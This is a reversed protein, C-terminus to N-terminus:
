SPTLAACILTEFFLGKKELVNVTFGTFDECTMGTKDSYLVLITGKVSLFRPAQALFRKLLEKGTKGGAWVAEDIDGESPLYPPNFLIWDYRGQVKDFLDSETFVIKHEVGNNRARQGAVQLAIPNIDVATVNTVEPKM